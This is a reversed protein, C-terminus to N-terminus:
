KGGPRGGEGLRQQRIDAFQDERGLFGNGSGDVSTQRKKIPLNAGANATVNQM